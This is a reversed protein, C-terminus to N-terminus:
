HGRRYLMALGSSLEPHCSLCYFPQERGWHNRLGLLAKGGQIPRGTPEGCGACYRCPRHVGGDCRLCDGGEHLFGRVLELSRVELDTTDRLAGQQITVEIM